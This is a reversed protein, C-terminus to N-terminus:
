GSPIGRLSADLILAIRRKRGTSFPAEGDFVGLCSPCGDECDCAKVRECAAALLRPLLPGLAEALGTGGPYRDWLYVAPEGYHDDRLRWTAGLDAYDCLLEVPALSRLLFCLGALTAARRMDDREAALLAGPTEPSSAEIDAPSAGMGASPANPFLIALARTQMEEPPSRFLM